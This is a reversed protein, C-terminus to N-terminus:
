CCVTTIYVCRQLWCVLVCACLCALPLCHEALQDSTGCVQADMRPIFVGTSPATPQQPGPVGPTSSRSNGITQVTSGLLSAGRSGGDAGPRDEMRPLFVGTSPGSGNLSAQLAAAAAVAATRSQNHNSEIGAPGAQMQAMPAGAQSPAQQPMPAMGPESPQDLGPIVFNHPALLPAPGGGQAQLLQPQQGPHVGPRQPGAVLTMQPRPLYVGTSQMQKNQQRSQANPDRTTPRM